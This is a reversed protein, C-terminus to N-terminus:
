NGIVHYNWKYTGALLRDTGAKITFSITDGVAYVQETRPLAAAAANAPYLVPYSGSEFATGVYTITVLNGGGVGGGNHVIEVTGALNTGTVTVSTVGVGATNTPLTSNGILMTVKPRILAPNISFVPDGTGTESSLSGLLSESSITGAATGYL